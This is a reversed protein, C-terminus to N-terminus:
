AYDPILLGHMHDVSEPTRSAHQNLIYESTSNQLCTNLFHDGGGLQPSGRVLETKAALARRM